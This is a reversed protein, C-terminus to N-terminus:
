ESFTYILEGNENISYNDVDGTSSLVVLQGQTNLVYDIQQPHNKMQILLEGEIGLTNDQVTPQQLIQAFITNPLGDELYRTHIVIDVNQTTVSTVTPIQKIESM